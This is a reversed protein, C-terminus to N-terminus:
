EIIITQEPMDITVETASGFPGVGIYVYSVVTYEGPTLYEGTPEPVTIWNSTYREQDWTILENLSEGFYIVRENVDATCSVPRLNSPFVIEDNSNFVHVVSFECGTWSLQKTEFGTNTLRISFAIEEGEQFTNSLEGLGEELSNNVKSSDFKRIEISAKLNHEENDNKCGSITIILIGFILAIHNKM